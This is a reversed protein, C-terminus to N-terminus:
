PRIDHRVLIKVMEDRIFLMPHEKPADNSIKSSMTAVSHLDDFSLESSVSSTSLTAPESSLNKIADHSM